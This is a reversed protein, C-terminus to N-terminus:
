YEEKRLEYINMINGRVNIDQIYPLGQALRQKDLSKGHYTGLGMLYEMKHAEFFSKEKWFCINTWYERDQREYEKWEDSQKYRDWATIVASEEDTPMRYGPYYVTLKDGTYDILKARDIWLKSIEGDTRKFGIGNSYVKVIPREGKIRNPTKEDIPSGCWYVCKTIINYDKIDRKLKAYTM